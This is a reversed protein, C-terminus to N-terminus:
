CAVRRRVGRRRETRVKRRLPGLACLNRPQRHPPYFHEPERRRNTDFFRFCLSLLPPLNNTQSPKLTPLYTHTYLISLAKHEPCLPIANLNLLVTVSSHGTQHVAFTRPHTNFDPISLPFPLSDPTIIGMLRTMILIYKGWAPREITHCLSTCVDSAGCMCIDIWVKKRIKSLSIPILTCPV